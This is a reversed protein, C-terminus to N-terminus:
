TRTSPHSPRLGSRAIRAACAAALCFSQLTRDSSTHYSVITAVRSGRPQPHSATRDLAVARPPASAHGLAACCNASGTIPYAIQGCLALCSAWSNPRNKNHRADCPLVERGPMIHANFVLGSAGLWGRLGPLSAMCVRQFASIDCCRLGPLSAVRARQVACIDCCGLRTQATM